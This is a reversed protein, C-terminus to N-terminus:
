EGWSTWGVARFIGDVDDYHLELDNLNMEDMRFSGQSKLLPGPEVDARVPYKFVHQSLLSQGTRSLLFTVLQMADDRRETASNVGVGTVNVPQGYGDQDLWAIGLTDALKIGEEQEEGRAIVYGIYYTNVFSLAFEGAAVRWINGTDGSYEPTPGANTRVARAWELATDHGEHLLVQALLSRNYVNAASRLAVRGQWKPKALDRLTKIEGPQVQAKNYVVARARLVVGYWYGDRDRWRPPVIADLQPSKIVDFAGLKKAETLTKYDSVLIVDTDFKDYADTVRVAIGTQKTFADIVPQLYRAEHYWNVTLPPTAAALTVAACSSLWAALAMRIAFSTFRM